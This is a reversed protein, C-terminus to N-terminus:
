NRFSTKQLADFLTMDRFFLTENTTMSEIVRNKAANRHRSECPMASSM